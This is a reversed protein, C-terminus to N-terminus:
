NILIEIIAWVGTLVVVIMLLIVMSPILLEMWEDLFENLKVIKEKM